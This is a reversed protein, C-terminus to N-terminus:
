RLVLLGIELGLKIWKFLGGRDTMSWKNRLMVVIWRGSLFFIM